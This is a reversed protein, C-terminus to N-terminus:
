WEDDDEDSGSLTATSIGNGVYNRDDDYELLSEDIPQGAADCPLWGEVAEYIWRGAENRGLVHAPIIEGTMENRLRM